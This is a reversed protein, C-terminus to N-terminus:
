RGLQEFDNMTYLHSITMLNLDTQPLIFSDLLEELELKPFNMFKEAITRSISYPMELPLANHKALLIQINQLYFWEPDDDDLYDQVKEIVNGSEIVENMVNTLTVKTDNSEYLKQYIENHFKKLTLNKAKIFGFILRYNACMPDILFDFCTRRFDNAIAVTEALYTSGYHFDIFAFVAAKILSTRIQRSKETAPALASFLRDMVTMRTNGRHCFTVAPFDIKSLPITTQSTLKPNEHWSGIQQILIFMMLLTGLIYILFWIIKEIWLAADFCYKISAVSTKCLKEHVTNVFPSM